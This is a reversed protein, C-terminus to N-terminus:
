KRRGKRVVKMTFRGWVVRWALVRYSQHELKAANRRAARYTMASRM